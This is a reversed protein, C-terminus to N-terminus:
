LRWRPPLEGPPAYSCFQGTHVSATLHEGLAPAERDIAKIASRIAKTVSVRAREAPSAVARDRGGLGLAHTLEDTLADIEDEIRAVREPDGWSRAEELEEALEDLRRRYAAKAEADLAPGADPLAGVRGAERSVGEAAQALEVAYTERGPMGLLAAIYGLGKVHRLRFTAGEYGIAWVEGERRFVADEAAPPGRRSRLASIRQVLGPLAMEEAFAAAEDLLRGAEAADGDGGRAHHM